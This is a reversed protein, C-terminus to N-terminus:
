HWWLRPSLGTRWDAWSPTGSPQSPRWGPLETGRFASQCLSDLCVTEELPWTGFSPTGPSRYVPFNYRMTRQLKLVKLTGFSWMFMLIRCVMRDLVRSTNSISLHDKLGRTFGHWGQLIHRLNDLNMAYGQGYREM